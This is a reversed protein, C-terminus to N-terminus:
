KEMYLMGQSIQKEPLDPVGPIPVMYGGDICDHDDEPGSYSVKIDTQWRQLAHRKNVDPMAQYAEEGMSERLYAEFLEDLVVSGCMDGLFDVM